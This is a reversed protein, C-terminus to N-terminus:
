HVLRIVKNGKVLPGPFQNNVVVAARTYGDPAIDKDSITLDGVTGVSSALSCTFLISLTSLLKLSAAPPPMSLFIHFYLDPGPSFISGLLTYKHRRMVSDCESLHRQLKSDGYAQFVSPSASCQLRRTLFWSRAREGHWGTPHELRFRHPNERRAPRASADVDTWTPPPQRRRLCAVDGTFITM